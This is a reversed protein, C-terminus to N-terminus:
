AAFRRKNSAFAAAWQHRQYHHQLANGPSGSLSAETIMDLAGRVFTPFPATLSASGQTAPTQNTSPPAPPPPASTERMVPTRDFRLLIHTGPAGWVGVQPNEGCHRRAAELFSAPTVAENDQHPGEPCTGARQYFPTGDTSRCYFIIPSRCNEGPNDNLIQQLAAREQEGLNRTFATLGSASNRHLDPLRRLGDLDGSRVVCTTTITGGDVVPTRCVMDTNILEHSFGPAERRITRSQRHIRHRGHIIRRQEPQSDLRAAAAPAPPPPPPTSAAALQERLQAIQTQAAELEDREGEARLQEANAQQTEAQAETRTAEAVARAARQRSRSMAALFSSTRIDECRYASIAQVRRWQCAGDNDGATECRTCAGGSCPLTLDWEEWENAREAVCWDQEIRHTCATRCELEALETRLAERATTTTTRAHINKLTEMRQARIGRLNNRTGESVRTLGELSAGYDPVFQLADPRATLQARGFEAIQAEARETFLSCLVMAVAALIWRWKDTM